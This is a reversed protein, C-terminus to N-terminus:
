RRRGTELAEAVLEDFIQDIEKGTAFEQVIYGGLQRLFGIFPADAVSPNRLNDFHRNLYERDRDSCQPTNGAAVRAKAVALKAAREEPTGYKSKRPKPAGRVRTVKPLESAMARLSLALTRMLVQPWPQDGIMDAISMCGYCDAKMDFQTELYRVFAIMGARTTPRTLILVRSMLFMHDCDRGSTDSDADVAASYTQVAQRHREIAVFAPDESKDRNAPPTETAEDTSVDAGAILRLASRGRPPFTPREITM